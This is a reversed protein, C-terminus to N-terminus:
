YNILEKKSYERGCHVCAYIRTKGRREYNVLFGGYFVKKGCGNPCWYKRPDKSNM